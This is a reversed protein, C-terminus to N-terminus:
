NLVSKVVSLYKDIVIKEDFENIMKIRGAVGMSSRDDESLFLMVEMKEALDQSDRVRCLYGNIADDVVDRCGVNDTTIIPKEMSASELLIRPTGERYFSPLVICDAKSIELRVDDSSGLYEVCGDTTWIDMQEKSIAISSVTDLPGLLQFEVNKHKARIIKAADVFEQIGKEWLMRSALLFIFVGDHKKEVPTFKDVDVGSGPLVDCKEDRVLGENKFMEFDDKNQFFVKTAKAQSIKYLFKALKTFINQKIFLAGLGAINNITPIKLISAVMTGYINPKITYQLVIDPKLKKYITYYEYITKLDKFPNVGRADVDINIYKFNEKINESYKDYPCIFIVEYGEKQFSLGLNKRM